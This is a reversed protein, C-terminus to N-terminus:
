YRMARARPFAACYKGMRQKAPLSHSAAPGKLGKNEITIPQEQLLTQSPTGWSGEISRQKTCAMPALHDSGACDLWRTTDSTNGNGGIALDGIVLIGLLTGEKLVTSPQSVDSFFAAPNLTIVLFIVILFAFM